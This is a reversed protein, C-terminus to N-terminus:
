FLTGIKVLYVQLKLPFLIFKMKYKSDIFFILFGYSDM